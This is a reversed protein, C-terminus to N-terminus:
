QKLNKYLNDIQKSARSFRLVRGKGNIYYKTFISIETVSIFSRDNLSNIIDETTDNENIGSILTTSFPNSEFYDYKDIYLSVDENSLFPGFISRSSYETVLVFGTLIIVLVIM